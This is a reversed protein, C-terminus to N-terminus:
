KTYDAFSSIFSVAKLIESGTSSLIVLNGFKERYSQNEDRNFLLEYLQKLKEERTVLIQKDVTDVEYYTENNELLIDPGFLETKLIVDVFKQPYKGNIFNYYEDINKMRLAIIFPVIYKICLKFTEQEAFGWSNSNKIKYIAIQSLSYFRNIERLQFGFYDIIKKYNSEVEDYSVDMGLFKCYKETDVPLLTIRFDFFRDLYSHADFDNGYYKKITHQLQLANISFVFTIKDNNFYHKIRELLKVAFSPRCRDLEDIFIILRQNEDTFSNFFDNIISQLEKQKQIESWIEETNAADKLTKFFKNLDRGTVLEALAGLCKGAELLRDKFSISDYFQHSNTYINYIISLVPDTDNDNEWADYYVSVMNKIKFDEKKGKYSEFKNKIQEDNAKNKNLNSYADLILKAQKVFFTKGSGWKADIAISVNNEASNLLNIFYYLGENRGISDKLFMDLLNEENPRLELSKM